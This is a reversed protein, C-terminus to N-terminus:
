AIAAYLISIVILFIITMAVIQFTLISGIVASGKEGLAQRVSKLLANYWRYLLYFIPAGALLSLGISWAHDRLPVAERVVTVAMLGGFCLGFIFYRMAQKVNSESLAPIEQVM